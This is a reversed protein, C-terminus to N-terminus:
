AEDIENKIREDNWAHHPQRGFKEAFKDVLYQSRGHKDKGESVPVSKNETHTENNEHQEIIPINNECDNGNTEEDMVLCYGEPIALFKAVHERNTVDAIHRGDSDPSFHYVAGQMNVVTGKKRRIISEIKM